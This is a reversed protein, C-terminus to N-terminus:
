SFVKVTVRIVEPIWHAMVLHNLFGLAVAGSVTIGPSVSAMLISVGLPFTPM